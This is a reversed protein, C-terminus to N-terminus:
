WNWMTGDELRAIPLSAPRYPYRAALTEDIEVGHGPVDGPHLMGNEFRYAHPFVADAEESHRMYEQIGFNPVWLDFHLAAGMTIPSLDTAGHCGTRVGHLGAFDAIRRLHTIGGAGLVTTRVYDILRREILHKADWITNFVEGVAIPTVTHQRILEFAAQDEAPTPDEMWFLDFPELSQGLRAAEIPTLRHHVDHLLSPGAGVAKRVAEFLKPAHDLYLRSNWVTEEPAGPHAPEYSLTGRGVGYTVPLGPVGSQVRVAKYGMEIYRGVAEVAEDINAGNAHGYVTVGRRSAGGLLQYLPMGALKAKIDWLAVDVAAIARM